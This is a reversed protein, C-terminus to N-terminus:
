ERAESEHQQQQQRQQQIHWADIIAAAATPTPLICEDPVAGREGLREVVHGTTADYALYHDGLVCGCKAAYGSVTAGFNGNARIANVLGYVAVITYENRMGFKAM